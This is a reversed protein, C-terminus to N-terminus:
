DIRINYKEMKEYLSTRSLGLAKAAHVRCGGHKMLADIIAQRETEAMLVKLERTEPKEKMGTINGPLHKVQILGAEDVFNAAHEIVNELERVNGPWHYQKIYEMARPSVKTARIYPNASVKKVLAEVLLPIDEVRERLPPIRLSIVNLRYYLDDRFTGEQVMQELDRNTASIVRVNVPKAENSGVKKVKKDQLVRLLKAQMHLPMEGIEDLFLTGGDAAQFMGIKGGKKAGTFSGEEYGFLESEMLESPIAACNVCVFPQHTGYHESHIAHAVLEKGTGSEGLILVNSNSFAVHKITNKLEGMAPSKGVIDDASYKSSNAKKFSKEYFNLEDTLDGIKKYLQDLEEVDKFLVRGFAGEVRGNRIIPIRSSVMNRGKVRQTQIEAKKTKLVEALRTNEIVETVPKGIVEDRKVGLFRAYAHSLEMIRGERDVFVICEEIENLMVDLLFNADAM